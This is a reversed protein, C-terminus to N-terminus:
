SSYTRSFWSGAHLGRLRWWRRSTSSCCRSSIAGRIVALYIITGVAYAIIDLWDAVSNKVLLPRALEFVLSSFVLLGVYYYKNFVILVGSVYRALASFSFITPMVLLDNLWSSFFLIEPFSPKFFLQNVAFFALSIILIRINARPCYRAYKPM